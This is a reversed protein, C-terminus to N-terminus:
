YYEPYDCSDRARSITTFVACIAYFFSAKEAEKQIEPNMIM